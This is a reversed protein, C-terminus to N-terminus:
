AFFTHFTTKINMSEHCSTEERNGIFFAAFYVMFIKIFGIITHGIQFPDRRTFIKFVGVSVSAYVIPPRETRVIFGARRTNTRVAAAIL